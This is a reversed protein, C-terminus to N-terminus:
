TGGRTNRQEELLTMRALIRQSYDPHVEQVAVDLSELRLELESMRDAITTGGGSGGSAGGRRRPPM